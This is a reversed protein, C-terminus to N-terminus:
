RNASSAAEPSLFFVNFHINHHRNEFKQLGRKSAFWASYGLDNMRAVLGEVSADYALLNDDCLEMMIVRPHCDSAMLEKAGDIVLREAGEVDIKIVDIASRGSSKWHSDLTCASVERRTAAAVRGTDILSSYAGDEAEVFSVNGEHDSVASCIAQVHSYGNLELSASLLAHNLPIPDFAVVSGQPASQALLMTFYGINAGVDICRDSPRILTKLARSDTQEYRRLVAIQRGVDENVLVLLWSDGIRRQLVRPFAKPFRWESLKLLLNAPWVLLVSRLTRSM